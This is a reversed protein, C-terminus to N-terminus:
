TTSKNTKSFVKTKFNTISRWNIFVPLFASVMYFIFETPYAYRWNGTNHATLVMLLGTLLLMNYAFFAIFATKDRFKSKYLTMLSLVYVLGSLLAWLKNKFLTLGVNKYFFDYIKYSICKCIHAQSNNVVDAKTYFLDEPLEQYYNKFLIKKFGASFPAINLSNNHYTKEMYNNKYFDTHRRQMENTYFPRSEYSVANLFVLFRMFKGSYVKTADDKTKEFAIANSKVVHQWEERTYPLTDGQYSKIGLQYLDHNKIPLYALIREPVVEKLSIYSYLMGLILLGMFPVLIYLYTKIKQKGFYLYILITFLFVFNIIGTPRIFIPLVLAISLLVWAMKRNSFVSWILLACITILISVYLSETLLMTDFAISHSSMFFVSLGISFFVCLKPLYKYSVIIFFLASLFSIITQAAIISLINKSFLGVFWLFIPYLPPVVGFKPLEGHTLGEIAMFYVATDNHYGVIPFYLFFPLRSIIFAFLLILCAIILIYHKIYFTSKFFGDVRRM